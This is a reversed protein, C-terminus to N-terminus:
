PQGADRMSSRRRKLLLGTSYCGKRRNVSIAIDSNVLAFLLFAGVPVSPVKAPTNVGLM